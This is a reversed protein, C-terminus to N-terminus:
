QIPGRGSEISNVSYSRNLGIVNLIKDPDIDLFGCVSRFSFLYDEEPNLFYEMARRSTAGQKRLDAMATLLIAKLLNKEPLAIDTPELDDYAIYIATNKRDRAM